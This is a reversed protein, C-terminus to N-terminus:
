DLTVAVRALADAAPILPRPSAGWVCVAKGEEGVGRWASGLARCTVPMQAHKHTLRDTLTDQPEPPWTLSQSPHRWPSYASTELLNVFVAWGTHEGWGVGCGLLM